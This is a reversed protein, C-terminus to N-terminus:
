RSPHVPSSSTKPSPESMTKVIESLHNIFSNMTPQREDFDDQIRRRSGDARTLELSLYGESMGFGFDKLINMREAEPLAMIKAKGGTEAEALEIFPILKNVLDAAEQINLMKLDVPRAGHRNSIEVSSLSIHDADIRQLLIYPGWSNFDGGDLEFGFKLSKWEQKRLEQILVKDPTAGVVSAFAILLAIITPITKM